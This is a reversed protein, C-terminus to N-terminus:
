LRHQPLERAGDLQLACLRQGVGRRRRADAGLKRALWPTALRAFVRALLRATAELPLREPVAVLMPQDAALWLDLAGDHTGGPLDLVLGTEELEALGELLRSCDRRSPDGALPSAGRLVRLDAHEASREPKLDAGSWPSCGSGEPVDLLSALSPGTWDADVLCVTHGRFVLRSGLVAAVTSRGVGGSGSAIAWTRGLSGRPKSGGLRVLPTREGPTVM